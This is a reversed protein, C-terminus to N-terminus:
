IGAHFREKELLIAIKLLVADDFRKLDLGTLRFIKEIRYLLTNRHIYLQRATESTNLNNEFFKAVTNLSEGDLPTGEGDRFVDRLFGERCDAPLRHLLRELGLSEYSLVRRDDLFIRGIEYAAKAESYSQALGYV